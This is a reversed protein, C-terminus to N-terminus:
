LNGSFALSLVSRGPGQVLGQGVDPPLGPGIPVFTGSQLDLTGFQLGGTIIYVLHSRKVSTSDDPTRRRWGHGQAQRHFPEVAPDGGSSTTFQLPQAMALTAILSGAAISTLIARM